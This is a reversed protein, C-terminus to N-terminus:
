YVCMYIIVYKFIFFVNNYKYIVFIEEWRMGIKLGSVEGLFKIINVFFYFKKVYVSIMNINIIDVIYLFMCVYYILFFLM